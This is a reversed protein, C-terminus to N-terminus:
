LWDETLACPDLSSMPTLLWPESAPPLSETGFTSMGALMASIPSPARPQVDPLAAVAATTAVGAAANDPRATADDTRVRKTPVVGAAAPKDTPAERKPTVFRRPAPRLPTADAQAAAAPGGGARVAALHALRRASVVQTVAVKKHKPATGNKPRKAQVRFPTTVLVEAPADSGACVGLAISLRFPQNGQSSSLPFRRDVALRLQPPAAGRQCSALWATWPELDVFSLTPPLVPTLSPVGGSSETYQYLTDQRFGVVEVSVLAKLARAVTDHTVAGRGVARLVAASFEAGPQVVLELPESTLRDMRDRESNFHDAPLVTVLKSM